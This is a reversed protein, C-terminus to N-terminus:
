QTERQVQEKSFRLFVQGLTPRSLSYDQLGIVHSAEQMKLFLEALSLEGETAGVSKLMPLQFLYRGEHFELLRASRCLEDEVFRMVPDQQSGPSPGLGTSSFSNQRTALGTILMLQYGAGHTNKVQDPSGICRFRGNIQIGM